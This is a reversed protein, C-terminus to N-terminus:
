GRRSRKPKRRPPSARSPVSTCPFGPTANPSPRRTSPSWCPRPCSSRLRTATRSPRSPPACPSRPRATASTAPSCATWPSPNKWTPRSRTSPSSSTPHRSMPSPTRSNANGLRTPDSPTGRPRSASPTCASSNRPSRTSPRRRALRRRRGTLGVWRPSPPNTPDRPSIPDLADTPVFLRDAPQGRKSPAYEIVLYDRTSAADGRGITRSVLEIFRGIGHQDHVIYDGPHLTLPDVGKRRRSPMRRMDRTTAGVRGTLDGETLIALKLHPAVFGVGAQATTITVLGPDPQAEVNDALAAPCSADTLISRIRRGPGPGETTVVIRWGDRALDTLDAAARAFDGRYPHVDRAGVRMLTPSVVVPAPGDASPSDAEDIASALDAPPLDTLEWWPRTGSGWLDGLDLFSAKSAELPTDAGGAAASWAAALFEETTAVLDAARARIREPDSALIPSGAPLLDLLSDMGSVLIPALSEIGPAAIGEAALSLMEAAGPLRDAAERARARVAQTLLLERCPVAWVGDAAEGLTRQDSVSFARIDDVEDGWLEVRLPHPEQPPFVDLIGGRVSMQGRGEVMDVREYGLEALRNTVDTLDLIDGTRVRVPELDALGSIIPQLFARIPVVLVSIPGASEDGAVPHVLRRLVAIRRAMTDVQPSLREHPLTEWAPLMAVGPIWSALANTLTEADRGTATLVVLPRAARTAVAALLPPRIGVPAVITGSRGAEISDTATEIAPDTSIDPLLGTLLV